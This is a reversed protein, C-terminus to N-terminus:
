ARNQLMFYIIASVGVSVPPLEPMFNPGMM